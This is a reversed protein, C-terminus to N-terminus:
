EHVFKIEGYDLDLTTYLKMDDVTISGKSDKFVINNDSRYYERILQRYMEHTLLIGDPFPNCREVYDKTAQVMSEATTITIKKTTMM